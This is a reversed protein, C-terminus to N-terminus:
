GLSARTSPRAATGHRWPAIVYNSLHGEVNLTDGREPRLESVDMVEKERMLESNNGTTLRTKVVYHANITNNHPRTAILIAIGQGGFGLAKVFLLGQDITRLRRATQRVRERIEDSPLALRYRRPTGGTKQQPIQPLPLFDQTRMGPWRRLGGRRLPIPYAAWIARRAPEGHSPTRLQRRYAEHVDTYRQQYERNLLQRVANYAAERLAEAPPLAEKAAQEAQRRTALQLQVRANTPRTLLDNETQQRRSVAQNVANLADQYIPRARTLVDNLTVSANMQASEAATALRTYEALTQPSQAAQERLDEALLSFRTAEKLNKLGGKLDNNRRQIQRQLPTQTQSM